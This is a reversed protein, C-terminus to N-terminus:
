EQKANAENEPNPWSVIQIELKFQNPKWSSGRVFLICKQNQRFWILNIKKFVPWVEGSMGSKVYIMFSTRRRTKHKIEFAEHCWKQCLDPCNDIVATPISQTQNWIGQSIFNWWTLTLPLKFNIGFTILHPLDSWNNNFGIQLFGTQTGPRLETYLIM